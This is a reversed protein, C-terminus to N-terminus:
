FKSAAFSDWSTIQWTDCQRGAAGSLAPRLIVPLLFWNTERLWAEHTARLVPALTEGNHLQVPLDHVLTM